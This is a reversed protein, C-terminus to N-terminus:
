KQAPLTLPEPWAPVGTLGAHALGADIWEETKMCLADALDRDAALKSPEVPACDTLYQGAIDLAPEHVVGVCTTAAGQQASKTFPSVLWLLASILASGRGIQTRMLSGPHLSCACLRAGYRRHLAAAFLVNFLKAYGYSAQGLLAADFTARSAPLAALDPRGSFRHSDSAVVIVRPASSALLRSFLLRSLLAHGIHCVGVTAEFGEATETYTAVTIGANLVLVDVM